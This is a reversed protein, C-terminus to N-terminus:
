DGPEVQRPYYFESVSGIGSTNIFVGDASGKEVVKTDGTVIKAGTQKCVEGMSKAILHLKEISFGEEIIFGASIYLPIAGSTVLDNITGCVALKGIDGGRFFLPKVVYSDTTYAFKRPIADFVFSDSMSDFPSNNFHKYFVNKILKHTDVGGDGHSLRIKEDMEKMGEMGSTLQM